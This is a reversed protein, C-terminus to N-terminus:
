ARRVFARIVLAVAVAITTPGIFASFIHLATMDDTGEVVHVRMRLQPISKAVITPRATPNPTASSTIAAACAM